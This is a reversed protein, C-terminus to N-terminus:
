YLGKNPVCFRVGGKPNEMDGKYRPIVHCHFHMISQGASTGCNWGINYGDPSYEKEIIDKVNDILLVLEKKEEMSLDFYDKKLAKSIILFHGPSVPFKDRIVFFLGTEHIIRNSPIELFDKM